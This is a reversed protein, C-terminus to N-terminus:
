NLTRVSQVLESQFVVDIRWNNNNEYINWSTNSFLVLVVFDFRYNIIQSICKSDCRCYAQLNLDNM